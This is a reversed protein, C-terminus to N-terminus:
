YKNLKISKSGNSSICCLQLTNDKTYYLNYLYIQSLMNNVPDKIHLMFQACLNYIQTAINRVHNCIRTVVKACM